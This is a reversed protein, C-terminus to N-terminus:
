SIVNPLAIRVQPRAPVDFPLRASKESADKDKQENQNENPQSNQETNPEPTVKRDDDTILGDKGMRLIKGNYRENWYIRAINPGLDLYKGEPISIIIEVRQDRFHDDRPIIINPSLEILSDSVNYEYDINESLRIAEQQTPGNSSRIVKVTAFATTSNRIYLSVNQGMVVNNDQFKILELFNSEHRSILDHFYNDPLIRVAVTDRSSFNEYYQPIEHSQSVQTAIRTGVFGSILLGAFFMIFLTVSLFPVPTKIGGLMRIGTYILGIVPALVLIGGGVLGLVLYNRNFLFFEDIVNFTLDPSMESFTDMTILGGISSVLLGLGFIIFLLGIIKVISKGIVTLASGLNTAVEQAFDKAKSANENNRMKDGLNSFEENVKQRISEITVDKGKMHLKESTTKAAPMIIWLVIYIFIATGFTIIALIVFALRIWIPDTQFYHSIGSAVGGVVHDDEDRYIKRHPNHTDDAQESKANKNSGNDANTDEDSYVEPEGMIGIIENVDEPTIVHKREHLKLHFLEAIRAEIDAMIEQSGETGAFTKRVAELYTKLVQYAEEEINFIFGSINVTVTKNM